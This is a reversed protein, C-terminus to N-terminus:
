CTRTLSRHRSDAEALSARRLSEANPAILERHWRNGESYMREDWVEVNADWRFRSDDVHDNM